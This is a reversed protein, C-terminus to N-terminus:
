GKKSLAIIYEIGQIKIDAQKLTVLYPNSYVMKM